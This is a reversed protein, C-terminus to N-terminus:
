ARLKSRAESLAARRCAGILGIGASFLFFTSPEPVGGVPTNFILSFNPDDPSNADLGICYQGPALNGSSITGSFGDGSNLTESRLVRAHARWALRISTRPEAPRAVLLPPLM